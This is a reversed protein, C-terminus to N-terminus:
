KQIGGACLRKCFPDCGWRAAKPKKSARRVCLRSEPNSFEFAEIGGAKRYACEKSIRPRSRCLTRSVHATRKAKCVSGTRKALLSVVGFIGFGVANARPKTDATLRPTGASNDHKSQNHKLWRPLSRNLVSRSRGSKQEIASKTKKQNTLPQM